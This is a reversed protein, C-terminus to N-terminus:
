SLRPVGLRDFYAIPMVRNLAYRSNRWWRRSNAAIRLADTESAGMALLERYMTKGRRWHWLQLARLRHRLWEDLERFVKPTQSLQFYAKWGPVYARLREVVEPLSRGCTRRTIERIRQKFTDMAKGAVACKIRDGMGRWLEYGLFKRGTAPAVATKAENVKLHLRAYLKRLGSLVREGAQQSRVYVNCDDAYRVFRHGRQELARDVEDLLVNALLPSLPGGQPTGEHRELVVGGDMLGAQLYRRILRLVAQDDIRRSLREMLIDHNVRDFFKELDVDVVVRYGNQVHRQASLVADHARRGPRFGHSHDSFTPAIKPQLVQLLAQQILRDTVTPIGLERLSGDPKPIQVRKVPAPRYSGNLLSERIKPWQTKLHEATEAITRGDVGASGRNAKVRKWAAVMNASALAQELLRGRGLSGTEHRATRAEDGVAEPDAEGRGEAIRGPQGPKQHRARKLSM